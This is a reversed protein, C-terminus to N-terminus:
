QIGGTPNLFHGGNGGTENAIYNRVVSLGFTMDLYGTLSQVFQGDSFNSQM